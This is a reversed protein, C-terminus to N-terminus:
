LFDLDITIQQNILDKFLLWIGFWLIKLRHIAKTREMWFTLNKNLSLDGEWIMNLNRLFGGRWKWVFYKLNCVLWFIKLIQMLRLGLSWLGAGEWHLVCVSIPNLLRLDTTKLQLIALWNRNFQQSWHETSDATWWDYGARTLFESILKNIRMVKTNLFAGTHYPSVLHQDIKPSLPM